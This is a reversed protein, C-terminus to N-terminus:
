NKEMKWTVSNITFLLIRTKTMTFRVLADEWTDHAISAIFNNNNNNNNYITYDATDAWNICITYNSYITHNIYYRSTTAATAM